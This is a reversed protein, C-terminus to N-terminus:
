NEGAYILLSIVAVPLWFWLYYKSSDSLEPKREQLLNEETQFNRLFIENKIKLNKDYTKENDYIFEEDSHEEQIEQYLTNEVDVKNQIIKTFPSLIIYFLIVLMLFSILEIM